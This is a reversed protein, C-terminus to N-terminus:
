RKEEEESGHLKKTFGYFKGVAAAIGALPAILMAKGLNEAQWMSNEVVQLGPRGPGKEIGKNLVEFPVPSVYVTNTGGNENEGYIYGGIKGALAHAEKLIEERPGIKQVNEPCAEICAPINGERIRNFCRDCKYMVGNGALSPMLDLYPGVGTQRQPISWPCVDQCKSGGLCLEPDILTIGNEAKGAAGWPCLNACPPNQCHMCRRPFTFSREKGQVEVRAEQIFVWNYPTLRSSVDKKESWDSVKVTAPIMKPFPKQPRPYKAQNAERCAEVCAECGICKQIDILTAMERAFAARAPAPVAAAGLVGAAALTGKLFSRRSIKRSM